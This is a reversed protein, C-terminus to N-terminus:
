VYFRMRLQYTLKVSSQLAYTITFAKNALVEGIYEPFDDQFNELIENYINNFAYMNINVQQSDINVREAQQEETASPYQNIVKKSREINCTKDITETLTGDTITKRFIGSYFFDVFLEFRKAKTNNELNYIEDVKNNNFQQRIDNASALIEVVPFAYEIINEELNYKRQYDM